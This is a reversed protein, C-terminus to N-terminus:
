TAYRYHSTFACSTEDSQGSRLGIPKKAKGAVRSGPNGGKPKEAERGKPKGAKRPLLRFTNYAPAGTQLSRLGQRVM